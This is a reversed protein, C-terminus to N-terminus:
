DACTLTHVVSAVCRRPCASAVCSRPCVGNRAGAMQTGEGCSSLHGGPPRQWTGSGESVLRRLYSNPSCFCCLKQSLGLCRPMKGALPPTDVLSPEKPAPSPAMKPGSNRLSWDACTLEHVAFPSCASQLLLVVEPVPLLLVAEAFSRTEAELCRPVKGMLPSTDVQSPEKLAPSPAM